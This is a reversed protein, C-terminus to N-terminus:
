TLSSASDFHAILNAPQRAVMGLAALRARVSALAGMSATEPLTSRYVKQLQATVREWTFLSHVRRVGALGMSRALDPKAQLQSLARALAIPDKPPVLLGTVGDLVSYSIGGVKAGIVPIACAMAELPTIGFAEHWPTSVLVNAASYCARLESRQRYGTFVVKDAVGLSQSLTLLRAIESPEYSDVHESDDGVVLLQVKLKAPLHALARILNDTGKDPTLRGVQLIIFDDQSLGLEARAKNRPMPHIEQPDIGCPVMALRAPDAEYLTALDQQDQPCEAIIADAQRVLLREIDIRECPFANFPADHQRVLGMAHFTMVLPIDLARKLKLGTLGALFFNAHIVDYRQSGMAEHVGAAFDDVHPLLKEAPIFTAPGAEIHRVKVHPALEVTRPLNADDLRTFIDVHHGLKGLCRAVNGIYLHQGSPKAQGWSSALPSAHESLLAIRMGGHGPREGLLGM